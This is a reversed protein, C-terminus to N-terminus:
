LADWSRSPSLMPPHPLMDRCPGCIATLGRSVVPSACFLADRDEVRSSMGTLGTGMRCRRVLTMARNAAAAKGMTMTLVTVATLLKRGLASPTSRVKLKRAQSVIAGGSLTPSRAATSLVHTSTHWLEHDTSRSNGRYM